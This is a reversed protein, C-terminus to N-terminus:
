TLIYDFSMRLVRNIGHLQENNAKHGDRLSIILHCECFETLAKCNSM